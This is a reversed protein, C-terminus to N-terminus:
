KQRVRVQPFFPNTGLKLAIDEASKIYAQFSEYSRFEQVFQKTADVLTVMIAVDALPNQLLKCLM